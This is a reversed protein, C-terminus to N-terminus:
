RIIHYDCKKLDLLNTGGAYSVSSQLCVNIFELQELMTKGNSHVHKVTGEVRKSKNEASASGFYKIEGTHGNPSDICAVLLKGSMVMDAGLVLAKAVDGPETIGGDAIIQIDSSKNVYMNNLAWAQIGRTGFGSNMYTTCVFGPAVGFKVCDCGWKALDIAAETTAINGGIVYTTMKSKIYKVMKELSVAHGHAIDITIYDPILQATVLDDILKYDDQKVGVSISSILNNDKTYKVFNIIEDYNMFRHLIYFMNNEALQIALKTNIVSSMNAPIVASNFKHKGLKVTTDCESRSEVICKNPILTMHKYDFKMMVM